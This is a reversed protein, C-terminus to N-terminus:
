AAREDADHRTTSWGRARKQRRSRRPKGRRRAEPKAPGCARACTAVIKKIGDIREKFEEYPAAVRTKYEDDTEGARWKLKDLAAAVGRQLSRM